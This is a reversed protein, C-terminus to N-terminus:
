LAGAMDDAALRGFAMAPTICAGPGPYSHGFVSAMTNGCAYLGAIVSGDPRTVRAHTDCVLGGKTGVDSLVVQMAYFPGQQVPALSPNPWEHAPPIGPYRQFMWLLYGAALVTGVAGIVM